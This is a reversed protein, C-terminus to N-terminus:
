LGKLILSSCPKPSLPLPNSHCIQVLFLLSLQYAVSKRACRLNEAIRHHLRAGHFRFDQSFHDRRFFAVARYVECAARSRQRQRERPMDAPNDAQIQRRRHEGHRLSRRAVCISAIDRECEAVCHFNGKWILRKVESERAVSQVM